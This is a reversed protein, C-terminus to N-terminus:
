LEQADVQKEKRAPKKRAVTRVAFRIADSESSLGHEQRIALMAARDTEDVYITTKKRM